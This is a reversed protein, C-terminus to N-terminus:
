NRKGRFNYVTYEWNVSGIASFYLSDGVFRLHASNFYENGETDSWIEGFPYHQHDVIDNKHIITTSPINERLRTITYYKKLRSYQIYFEQHYSSDVSYMTGSSDHEQYQETGIYIGEYKEDKKRCSTLYIIVIVLCFIKLHNM